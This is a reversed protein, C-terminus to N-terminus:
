PINEGSDKRNNAGAHPTGAYPFVQNYVQDNAAVNDGVLTTAAYTPGSAVLTLAIDMVDDGMRRGNPWGSSKTRAGDDTTTDGGIFGLRSFGSQGPLRVSMTTTDVRLVDPVFLAELDTRGTTVFSFGFVLNFLSAIEPNLAYSAFRASDTVPLTRNYKDKDKVAVFMENFLPNGMRNVQVYPGSSLPDGGSRYTRNRPRSVSAFVGVGNATGNAPLANALDAFPVNYAFSPLSSVPIQIAYTLVNFGKFTDVGGGDQGLGDGLSGDNDLIRSHLLDYLGSTDAYYGDERQGAFVAEGSPLSYITDQTYSDLENFSTAGSVAFGTVNDNYLPTVRLGVNPPPVLLKRGIVTATAGNTRIVKYGQTFNQRADGAENISGAETGLGYYLITNPNKLIPATNRPSSNTFEFDYRMVEAGTTPNAIHISYRADDAFRDYVPGAGPESFPHINVIVNLVKVNGDDIKTGIFAYLDAIDAQPDLAILPADSHSSALAGAPVLFAAVCARLAGSCTASRCDWVRSVFRAVLSKKLLRASTDYVGIM